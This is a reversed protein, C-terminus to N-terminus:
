TFSLSHNPYNLIYPDVHMGKLITTRATKRGLLSVSDLTFLIVPNIGCKIQVSVAKASLVFPLKELIFYIRINMRELIHNIACTNKKRTQFCIIHCYFILNSKEIGLRLVIIVYM